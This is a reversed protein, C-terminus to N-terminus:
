GKKRVFQLNLGSFVQLAPQGAGHYFATVQPEVFVNAIAGAFPFVKGVGLGFPVLYRGNEFDLVALPTSRFYWGGGISMTAFAQLTALNTNVRNDGGAFDTQWTVLTGVMSGGALPRVLVAAVGAQWSSGAGLAANTNTPLVLLPGVGFQTRSDARNLLIADFISLDGLGSASAVSSIPLTARLIQRGAVMVGRVNLTNAKSSGSGYFSPFYYNQLNIANMDALPNNAKAIDQESMGARPATAPDQAALPAGPLALVMAGILTLVTRQRTTM